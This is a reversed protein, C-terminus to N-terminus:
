KHVTNPECHVQSGAVLGPRLCGLEGPGQGPDLEAGRVGTDALMGGSGSSQEGWCLYLGARQVAPPAWGACVCVCVCEYVCECVCESVSMSM